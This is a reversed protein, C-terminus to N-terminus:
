TRIEYKKIEDTSKSEKNKDIAKQLSKLDFTKIDNMKNTNSLAGNEDGNWKLVETLIKSIDLKLKLAATKDTIYAHISKSYDSKDDMTSNALDVSNTLKNIENQISLILMCSETYLENLIDTLNNKDNLIIRFKKLAM